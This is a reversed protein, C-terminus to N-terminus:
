WYCGDEVNKADKPVFKEDPRVWYENYYKVFDDRVDWRKGKIGFLLQLAGGIHIAQKNLETKIKVALPLGYSGAGILAVDFDIKSIENMMYDLAEFWSNFRNDSAGAVTQVAKFVMLEFLPLKNKNVFLHERKQYQSLILDAFPHIVLVKKGALHSTWDSILPDVARLATLKTKQCFSNVIYDEMVCNFIALLDIEPYLTSMLDGFQMLENHKPPFFGANNKITFAVIKRFSKRLGLKIKLYDNFCGLETTGFRAVVFPENSDLLKKIYDSGQQQTLIEKEYYKVPEKYKKPVNSNRSRSIRFSWANSIYAATYNFINVKKM